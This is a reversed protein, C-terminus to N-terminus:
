VFIGSVPFNGAAKSAEELMTVQLILPSATPVDRKRERALWLAANCALTSQSLFMSSYLGAVCCELYEMDKCDKGPLKAPKTSIM